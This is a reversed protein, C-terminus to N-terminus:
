KGNVQHVPVQFRVECASIAIAQEAGDIEENTENVVSDFM